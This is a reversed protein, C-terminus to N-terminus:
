FFMARDKFDAYGLHASQPYKLAARSSIMFFMDNAITAIVAAPTESVCGADASDSSLSPM